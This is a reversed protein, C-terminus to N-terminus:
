PFVKSIQNVAYIGALKQQNLFQVLETFEEHTPTIGRLTAHDHTWVAVGDCEIAGRVLNELLAAPNAYNLVLYHYGFHVTFAQHISDLVRHM